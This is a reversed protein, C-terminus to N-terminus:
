REIQEWFKDSALNLKFNVQLLTIYAIHRRASDPENIRQQDWAELEVLLRLYRSVHPNDEISPTRTLSDVVAM